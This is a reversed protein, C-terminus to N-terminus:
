IAQLGVTEDTLVVEPYWKQLNRRAQVVAIDKKTADDWAKSDLVNDKIWQDVSEVTPM